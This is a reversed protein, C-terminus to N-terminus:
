QTLVVIYRNDPAQPPLLYKVQKTIPGIVERPGLVIATGGEDITLRLQPGTPTHIWVHGVPIMGPGTHQQPLKSTVLLLIIIIAGPWGWWPAKKEKEKKEPAKGKGGNQQHPHRGQSMHINPNYERIM